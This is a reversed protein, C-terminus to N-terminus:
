GATLGAFGAAAAAMAANRVNFEGTMRLSYASAASPSRVVIKRTRHKRHAPRLIGLHRRHDGPLTRKRSMSATRITAMSSPWAAQAPRHQAPPPLHTQNRRALQLYRRPRVRHQQHGRMRAPLPPVELAQRLLRHRIRRRRARQIRLRHFARRLRPKEAPRRDHVRSRPRRALLWALMSSTTTKGHTGSVVFNRKGRLFFEKMVEPLSHYLLKRDLAAEAEPNGRSIANGIIVVDTDPPINEERYGEAISIGQGRLFDSMPPYVNADSGTVTFGRQKMAAAVAGMATGCIGTFHFRTKYDSM